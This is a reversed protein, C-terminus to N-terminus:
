VSFWHKMAGSTGLCKFYHEVRICINGNVVDTHVKELHDM